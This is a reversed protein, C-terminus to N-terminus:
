QGRSRERAASRAPNRPSSVAPDRVAALWGSETLARALESAAIAHARENPHGDLKHVTLSDYAIRELVPGLQVVLVDRSRIALALQRKLTPWGPDVGLEYVLVVLRAGASRVAADLAVLEQMSRTYDAVPRKARLRQIIALSGFVTEFRGPPRVYGLRLDDRWSRDDNFILTLVVINPHYKAGILEYHLRAERPAYGSVGCNIVEYRPEAGRRRENLIRELQAQFTDTEHVGVGLAYSDGIGLIRVTGPPRAEPRDPGRCGHDNFRYSVAHAVPVNPLVLSSDRHRRLEVDRVEVASRPGGFDFQIRSQEDGSPATFEFRYPRLTTDLRVQQYLGLGSWPPHDQTVAAGIVRDPVNARARFSLVYREGKSIVIRSKTLQLLWLTDATASPLEVRLVSPSDTVTVYRAGSSRQDNFRWPEPDSNDRAFYGRPDDPYLTKAVTNPAYYEGIVPHPTTGGNWVVGPGANMSTVMLALEVVLIGMALSSTVLLANVIPVRPMAALLVSGAWVFHLLVLAGFLTRPQLPPAEGRVLLAFLWLEAVLLLAVGAQARASRSRWAVIAVALGSVAVVAQSARMGAGSSDLALALTGQLLAIAGLVASFARPMRQVISHPM